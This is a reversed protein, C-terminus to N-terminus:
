FSDALSPNLEKVQRYFAAYAANKYPNLAIHGLNLTLICLLDWGIFTLDLWFLDLKHGDMMKKSLNIAESATLNPNDAMIFPTMAYSFSKVIGPIIFLLSWLFVYLRRLFAQAFGQGFQDFKSFLDGFEPAEGDHQKLLFACYGLQMTGGVIMHLLFLITPLGFSISYRDGNNFYWTHSFLNELDIDKISVKFEPLFDVGSMMAGFICAIVAVGISLGWQDQLNARARARLNKAEM